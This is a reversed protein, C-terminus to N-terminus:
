SQSCDKNGWSHHILNLYGKWSPRSVIGLNGLTKHLTKLSIAVHHAHAQTSVGVGVQTRVCM